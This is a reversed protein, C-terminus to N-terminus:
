PRRSVWITVLGLGIIPLLILGLGGPTLTQFWHLVDRVANAVSNIFDGLM